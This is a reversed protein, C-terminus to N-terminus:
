KLEAVNCAAAFLAETTILLAIPFCDAYTTKTPPPRLVPEGEGVGAGMRSKKSPTISPCDWFKFRSKIAIEALDPRTM